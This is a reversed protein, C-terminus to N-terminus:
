RNSDGLPKIRDTWFQRPDRREQARDDATLEAVKARAASMMLKNTQAAWTPPRPNDKRWRDVADWVIGQANYAERM